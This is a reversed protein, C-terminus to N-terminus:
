AKDSFFFLIISPILLYCHPNLVHPKMLNVLNILKILHLYNFQHLHVVMETGVYYYLRLLIIKLATTSHSLFDKMFFIHCYAKV